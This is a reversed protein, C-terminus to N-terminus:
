IGGIDLTAKVEHNGKVGLTAELFKVVYGEPFYGTMTVNPSLEKQIVRCLGSLLLLPVMQRTSGVFFLSIDYTGPEPYRKADNFAAATVLRPSEVVLAGKPEGGELYALSYPMFEQSLNIHRDYKEFSKNILRVLQQKKHKPLFRIRMIGKPAFDAAKCKEIDEGKFKFYAYDLSKKTFSFRETIADLVPYENQVYRISVTSYGQETLQSFFSELMQDIVGTGRLYPLIYLYKIDAIDGNEVFAIVGSAEMGEEIGYFHYPEDLAQKQLFKPIFDIFADLNDPSIERISAM